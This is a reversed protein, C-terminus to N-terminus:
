KIKELKEELHLHLCFYVSEVIKLVIKKIALPYRNGSAAVV